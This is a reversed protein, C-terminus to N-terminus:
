LDELLMTFTHHHEQEDELIDEFLKKTVPDNEKEAQELVKM